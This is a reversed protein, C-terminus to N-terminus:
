RNEMLWDVINKHIIGDRSLDFHDASIVYKPYNDKLKKYIGFERDATKEDPMLYAVQIYFRAEGEDVVFDIESDSLIGVKVMHGRAILENYVVNELMAGIDFKQSFLSAFGNDSLYYKELTALSKRGAVDYRGAKNMVCSSVVYSLYNYLTEKSCERGENKFFKNISSASFIQSSTAALYKVIRELLEVNKVKFRSIIDKLIISDFLDSLFIKRSEEDAIAFRQPMGGWKLYDMLAKDDPSSINQIECAEKFTFPMVKFSVYRGSLLTALEGSLLKANSGTIFISVNNVSRFSNLAKEFNRVNQIEDFFLYYKKKDKLREQVYDYLAMEDQISSFKLDEFNLFLIHEEDVGSAKIEEQIQSLIVSKGARRMGILVKILESEYFPRIKRLWLERKIM